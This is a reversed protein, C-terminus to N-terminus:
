TGTQVNDQDPLADTREKAEAAQSASLICSDKRIHQICLDWLRGDRDRGMLKQGQKLRLARTLYNFDKGRIELEPEGKFTQPLLYLRM